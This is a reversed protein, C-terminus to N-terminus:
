PGPNWEHGQGNLGQGNLGQGRVTQGQGRVKQVKGALKKVKGVSKKVKGMFNRGKGVFANVHLNRHPIMLRQISPIGMVNNGIEMAPPDDM